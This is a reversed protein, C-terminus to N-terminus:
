AEHNDGYNRHDDPSSNAKIHKLDSRLHTLARHLHSKISGPRLKLIEASETITFGELYVLVFTERQRHTLRNLAELIMSRIFPDGEPMPNPDTCEAEGPDKWFTRLSKWRRYNHARRVLIRFFWTDLSSDERFDPLAKWAAIFSDQVVDEAAATDGGVLRWSLSMARSSIRDVFSVFREEQDLHSCSGLLHKPPFPVSTHSM